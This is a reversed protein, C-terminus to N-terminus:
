TVVKNIRSIWESHMVKLKSVIASEIDTDDNVRRLDCRKTSKDEQRSFFVVHDKRTHLMNAIVVQHGYRDLSALAKKELFQEDTELKFSCIFGSHSWEDVLPKLVKPVNEMQLIFKDSSGSQMKHEVLQDNPIFFDSVAAALYWMANTGLMDGMRQSIRRLLDLYEQLSVFELFLLSKEDRCKQMSSLASQLKSQTKDDKGVISNGNMRLYDLSWGATFDTDQSHHKTLNTFHRSYPQLSSQRHLFIVAYGQQLFYEASSAGRTGQSFNDLFRVTNKELPM